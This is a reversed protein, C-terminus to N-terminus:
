LFKRVVKISEQDNRHETLKDIIEDDFHEVLLSLKSRTSIERKYELGDNIEKGGDVCGEERSCYYFFIDGPCWSVLVGPCQSVSIM